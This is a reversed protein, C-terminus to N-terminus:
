TPIAQSFIKLYKIKKKDLKLIKYFIKLKKKILLERKLYLVLGKLCYFYDLYKFIQYKFSSLFGLFWFKFLHMLLSHFRFSCSQRIVSNIINIYCIYLIIYYFGNQTANLICIYYTVAAFSNCGHFTDQFDFEPSKDFYLMNYDDIINTHTDFSFLLDELVHHPNRIIVSLWLCFDCVVFLLM